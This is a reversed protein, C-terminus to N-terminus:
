RSRRLPDETPGLVGSFMLILFVVFGVGAGLLGGLVLSFIWLPGSTWTVAVGILASLMVILTGVDEASDRWAPLPLKGLAQREIDTSAKNVPRVTADGIFEFLAIDTARAWEHATRSYGSRSFFLAQKREHKAVGTLMQLAPRGVPQRQFKVQAVANDSRVDVGQDAGAATMRVNPFGAWHMWEAALREADVPDAILRSPPPVQSPQEFGIEDWSDLDNEDDWTDDPENEMM